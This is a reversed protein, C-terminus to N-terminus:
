QSQYEHYPLHAIRGKTYDRLLLFDRRDDSIAQRLFKIDAAQEVQVARASDQAARLQEQTDEVGRTWRGIFISQCVLAVIIGVPLVSSGLNVPRDTM